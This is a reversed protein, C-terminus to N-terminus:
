QQCLRGINLVLNSRVSASFYSLFYLFPVTGLGRSSGAEEACRFAEQNTM